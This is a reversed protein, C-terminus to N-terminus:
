ESEPLLNENLYESFVKAGIYNLHTLDGFCSDPFNLTSLDLLSDGPLSNRVTLWNQKITRDINTNYFIHKPTNFLVLKVSNQVCLHSIKRLYIEQIQGETFTQERFLNMKIEEQLKDRTVFEYGGFGIVRSNTEGLEFSNIYMKFNNIVSKMLGRIYAVPKRKLLVTKESFNFLYNYSTIKEIVFEDSFLWRVETDKLLDWPSFGLFITKIQSNYKLLSKLKIYSYLYAEGSQAINISNSILSDNVACEINSDGAFVRSINKDLKLIRYERQRVAYDSLLSLGIIFSGILISFLVFNKLFSKM